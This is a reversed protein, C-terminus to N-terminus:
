EEGIVHLYENIGFFIFKGLVVTVMVGVSELWEGTWLFCMLFTWTATFFRYVLAKKSFMHSLVQKLHEKM